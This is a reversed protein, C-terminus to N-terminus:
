KSSRVVNVRMRQGGRDCAKYNAQRTFQLEEEKRFAKKFFQKAHSLNHGQNTM